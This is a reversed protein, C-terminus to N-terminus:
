GEEALFALKHGGAMDVVTQLLFQLLVEGQPYFRELVSRILPNDRTTAHEMEGHQNLGHTTLAILKM